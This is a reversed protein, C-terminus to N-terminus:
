IFLDVTTSTETMAFVRQGSHNYSHVYVPRENLFEQQVALGTRNPLAIQHEGPPMLAPVSKAEEGAHTPLAVTTPVSKHTATASDDSYPGVVEYFPAEKTSRSVAARKQQRASGERHQTELQNDQEPKAHYTSTFGARLQFSVTSGISFQFSKGLM